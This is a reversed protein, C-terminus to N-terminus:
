SRKGSTEGSPEQGGSVGTLRVPLPARVAREDLTHRGSTRDTRDPDAVVVGDIRRGADDVAVAVRALEQESAAASAVVLVTTASPPAGGLTPANRDVVVLVVTLDAAEGPEEPGITLHPRPHTAVDSAVAAWLAASRDQGPGAVLRTAIGVSAAFAALQPGLSLARADGDLSVVTLSRPHEIRPRVEGKREPRPDAAALARLVQRLAWSEVPTAEYVRLLVRWGAVTRQPHSRSAALVPSGVADAIEDRLTMRPDRRSALLMLAVALTVAAAAGAPVWVLLRRGLPDGVAPGADQLVSVVSGTGSGVPAATTIDGKVTDLRLSVDAQEARLRAVLQAERRSDSSGAPAAKQRAVTTDIEQQLLGVQAQLDAERASLDALAAATVRRDAERVFAVYSDAVAQSLATAQSAVASGARIELLQDTPADVRVRREVQGVSLAPTVTRGAEGLVAESLVIRVQTAVDRGGGGSLTPTPLLVLTTSTLTPPVFAVYAVGALLGVVAAVALLRSRRRLLTRASRVDLVTDSM